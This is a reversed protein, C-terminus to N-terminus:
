GFSVAEAAIMRAEAELGVQRLSRTIYFLHQAPISTWDPAQMAAASLLVVTGAEGRQAAASIARSWNNQTFPNIEIKEAFDKQAEADVRGLGALAALFLGSKHANKSEDNDYFDDLQGYSIAGSLDPAGVSLIGWGLSGSDVIDAWRVAQVDLGATMMSAILLDSDASADDSPEILAAARATLVLSSRLKSPDSTWISRMASLKDADNEGVYADSLQQALDKTKDNSDPDDFARAYIDVVAKNSLVGLSAAGPAAAMRANIDIMPLQAQWGQVQSGTGALLKAPPTIGTAYSLGFRWTSFSSVKDWEIKVSRRGDTGAGVAKETLLYDIGSMWGSRRAENLFVTAPGQEGALSACISRAIKWSSQQSVRYASPALPCMGSLDANALFAQMSVDYLRQTYNGADVQQVLQRAAVSEGMRLLLWAREAVWDAGNVNAPTDTRSALLRRTMISGWRSALPGKTAQLIGKLAAGDALGFANAPFGGKAPSIFGVQSLSRRNAPPVDFVVRLDELESDDLGDVSSPSGSSSAETAASLSHQSSGETSSSASSSASNAPDSPQGSASNAPSQTITPSKAVPPPSAPRPPAPDGFGPPLLSEPKDQGIAPLAVVLASVSVLILKAKSSLKKLAENRLQKHRLYRCQSNSWLSHSNV